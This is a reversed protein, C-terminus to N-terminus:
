RVPPLTRHIESLSVGPPVARELEMLLGTWSFASAELIKNFVAVKV